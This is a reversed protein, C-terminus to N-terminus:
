IQKTYETIFLYAVLLTCFFIKGHKVGFRIPMSVPVEFFCFCIHFPSVLLGLRDQGVQDLSM